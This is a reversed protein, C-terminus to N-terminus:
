WKLAGMVADYIDIGALGLGVGVPLSVVEEPLATFPPVQGLATLVVVNKISKELMKEINM